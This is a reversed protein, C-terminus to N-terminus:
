SNQIFEARAAIQLAIVKQESKDAPWGTVNVHNIPPPPTPVPKLPPNIEFLVGAKFDARGYLTKKRKRAVQLGIQWITYNTLGQQRTVSLDPYPYPIFADQKVTGNTRYWRSFLIYRSLLEEAEVPVTHPVGNM